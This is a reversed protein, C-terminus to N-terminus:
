YFQYLHALNSMLSNCLVNIISSLKLNMYQSMAGIDKPTNFRLIFAEDDMFDFNQLIDGLVQYSDMM